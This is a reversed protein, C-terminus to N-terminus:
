DKLAPWPVSYPCKIRWTSGADTCQITVIANFAM